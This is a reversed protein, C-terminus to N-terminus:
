RRSADVLRAKPRAFMGDRNLHMPFGVRVRSYETGLALEPEGNLIKVEDEAPFHSSWNGADVLLKWVLEAPANVDIENLAYTASTKPDFQSAM